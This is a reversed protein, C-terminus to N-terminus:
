HAGLLTLAIETAILLIVIWELAEMRRTNADDHLKEYISEITELKRLVGANWEALRYRQSAVRHVRALYQDGYLKLANTVREFLVAGDVQMQATRRMEERVRRANRLHWLRRPSTQLTDHSRDLARDLQADLFRLELLELNAFELVDLVDDPEHDVLVAANWDILAVDHVGFSVRGSLADTIEQESLEDKESRLIRAITPGHETWLSSPAALPELREFQFVLYDEVLPAVHARQVNPRLLEVLKELRARADDHLARCAILRCSLDVLEELGGGIPVDYAVSAGGFDFLAVEVSPTSRVGGGVDLADITQVLRLPRPDFQFYPPVHGKHKIGEEPVLGSLSRRAADLDIAFGVDFALYVRCRGKEIRPTTM